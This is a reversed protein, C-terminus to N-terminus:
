KRILCKIYNKLTANLEENVNINSPPTAKSIFKDISDDIIISKTINKAYTCNSSIRFYNSIEFNAIGPIFNKVITKQVIGDKEFIRPSIHYILKNIVRNNADLEVTNLYLPNYDKDLIIGTAGYFIDDKSTQVKNLTVEKAKRLVFDKLITSIQSRKIPHDYATLPILYKDYEFYYLIDNILIIPVEGKRNEDLNALLFGDISMRGDYTMIPGQDSLRRTIYPREYFDSITM